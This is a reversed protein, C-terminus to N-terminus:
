LASEDFSNRVAALVVYSSVTLVAGAAVIIPGGFPLVSVALATLAGCGALHLVDPLADGVFSSPQEDIRARLTRRFARSLAPAALASTLLADLRRQQAAVRACAVCSSVHDDVVAQESATVENACGLLARQVDGCNM